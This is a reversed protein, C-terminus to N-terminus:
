TKPAALISPHEVRYFKETTNEKGYYITEAFNPFFCWISELKSRSASKTFM